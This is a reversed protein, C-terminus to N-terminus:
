AFQFRVLYLLYGLMAGDHRACLPSTASVAPAMTKSKSRMAGVISRNAGDGVSAPVCAASKWGAWCTAGAVGVLSNAHRWAGSEFVHVQDDVLARPLSFRLGLEM